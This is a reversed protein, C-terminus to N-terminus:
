GTFQLNNGSKEVWVRKGDIIKWTKGKTPSKRNRSSEAIRQKAEDNHRYGLANTNGLANQNGKLSQSLNQCHEKTREKGIMSLSIQQKVIESRVKGANGKSVKDRTEQSVEHGMLKDSVKRKWEETKPAM